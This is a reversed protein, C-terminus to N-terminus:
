NGSQPFDGGPLGLRTLFAHYITASVRFGRAKAQHLIVVAEDPLLIEREVAMILLGVLGLVPIKMLRAISRGKKEDVVLPLGRERALALAEAEGPDLLSRLDDLLPSDEVSVVELFSMAALYETVSADGALWEQYVAQPMLVREFCQGLLDLRQLGALVILATTDSVVAAM